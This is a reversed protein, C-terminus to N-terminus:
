VGANRNLIFFDIFSLTGWYGDEAVVANAADGVQHVSLVRGRYSGTDAPESVAVEFFETIPMDYRAGAVEGYMRADEHFAEKLREADGKAEGEMCLGLVRAIEDYDDIQDAMERNREDGHIGSQVGRPTPEIWTISNFRTAMRQQRRRSPWRRSISALSPSPADDLREIMELRGSAIADNRASAELHTVVLPYQGQSM